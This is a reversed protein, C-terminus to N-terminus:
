TVFLFAIRVDILQLSVESLVSLLLSESLLFDTFYYGDDGDGM